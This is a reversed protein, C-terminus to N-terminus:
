GLKVEDNTDRKESFGCLKDHLYKVGDIIAVCLLPVGFLGQARGLKIIAQSVDLAATKYRLRQINCFDFLAESSVM